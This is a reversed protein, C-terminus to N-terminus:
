IKIGFECVAVGVDKGEAEGRIVETDPAGELNSVRM